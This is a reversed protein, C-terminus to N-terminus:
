SLYRPSNSEGFAIGSSNSKLDGHLDGIAVLRPVAPYMGLQDYKKMNPDAKMEQIEKKGELINVRAQHNEKAVQVENPTIPHSMRRDRNYQESSQPPGDGSKVIKLANPQSMRRDRPQNIIVKDNTQTTPTTPTTSPNHDHQINPDSMSRRRGKYKKIKYTLFSKVEHLLKVKDISILESQPIIQYKICLQKLQQETLNSLDINNLKLSM